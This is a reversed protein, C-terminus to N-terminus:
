GLPRWRRASGGIVSAGARCSAPALPSVGLPLEPFASNVTPQARGGRRSRPFGCTDGDIDLFWGQISDGSATFDLGARPTIGDDSLFDSYETIPFADLCNFFGNVNAQFKKLSTHVANLHANVCKFNSCRAPWRTSANSPM